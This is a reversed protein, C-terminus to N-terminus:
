RVDTASPVGASATLKVMSARPRWAVWVTPEVGVLMKRDPCWHRAGLGVASGVGSRGDPKPKRGTEAGVPSPGVRHCLAAELSLCLAEHAM